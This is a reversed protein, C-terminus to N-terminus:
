YNVSVRATFTNIVPTFINEFYSQLSVFVYTFSYFFNFTM